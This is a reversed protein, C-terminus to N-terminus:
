AGTGNSQTEVRQWPHGLNLFRSYRDLNGGFVRRVQAEKGGKVRRHHGSPVLGLNTNTTFLRESVSESCSLCMWVFNSGDTCTPTVM